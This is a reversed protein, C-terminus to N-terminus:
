TAPRPASSRGARRAGALTERLADARMRGQEDAAVRHVRGRGLGLMQLSVFITVHSEDGVVVDIPPAGILGDVEADWGVRELVRHRAAALATFNAM